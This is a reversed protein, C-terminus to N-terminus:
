LAEETGEPPYGAFRHLIDEQDWSLRGADLDDLISRVWALEARKMALAYEIEVTFVRELQGRVDCLSKEFGSVQAELRAARRELLERCEDQSVAPLHALAAIFQPFENTAESLLWRMWGNFKALGPKTIRYVTREPRRGERSTEVPEILRARELQDVAHYLSGRNVGLLDDKGRAHMLRKMEYPHMPMEALLSLVLFLLLNNDGGRRTTETCRSERM